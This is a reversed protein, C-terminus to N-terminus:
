LSYYLEYELATVAAMMPRVENEYKDEIWTEILDETFVDGALLFEHDERLAELAESLTEPAKQIDAAEEPPLEYLDKDIPDAPEIRNRIGDLGAMLQAAFALYPNSSGDPARFELRKAKPNSGTIPIRIGASRNGQSYVMNVPAEFGKVLRRYSNVTPNTFAMVASAHHLLGGIYWRATDSLNAYGLEDYFLPKGDNWLSQHCHMGSGNDNQLPKPMFTASKGWEEAVNKVVYKFKMLDDAAHVLTNFEYNIEAQGAAGVEHHAREVKLGVETLRLSIDDRLDAQKDNPSVPFYGGKLRMKHGLNGAVEIASTNWPAEVSDVSFGSNHPETSYTVDDFIFFEAESAFFATDAIGTSALYAEAREAVGRPDRGYPEGTRPNVVSFTMVLTKAARFPDVFATKIDPILQMDSNAIGEFGRISSADFLQGNVFFDEDVTSAPVNFHHQMGPLDTFRIDVFQVEEKEIFSLVEEPSTFM